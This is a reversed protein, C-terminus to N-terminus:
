LLPAKRASSEPKTLEADTHLTKRRRMGGRAKSNIKEKSSPDGAAKLHSSLVKLGQSQGLKYNSVATEVSQNLRNGRLILKCVLIKVCWVDTAPLLLILWQKIWQVAQPYGASKKDSEASVGWM